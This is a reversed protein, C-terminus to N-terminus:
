GLPKRYTSYRKVPRFGMQQYVRLAGSPNETDVGLASETMGLAQQQRLSRAILARALGRKRWPRRTSINETYGRRVGYRANYVEDIFGRVMGAVQDGDWAVQWLDPQFLSWNRWREYDAEEVQEEGWHDAFAEVEAEWIARYDEPRAPRVELGPPLPLDPIDALDPRVMDYFHRTATYGEAQLLAELATETDAVFTDFARPGPPHDSAIARLRAECAHVLAQELGQGRWEPRLFGFHHYIREGDLQEWWMAHRYGALRGDIEALAVDRAPDFHKTNAYDNALREATEVERIGDAARSADVVAVMAPYDAEGQFARFTLGPIAPADPTTESAM